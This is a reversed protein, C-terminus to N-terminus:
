PADDGLAYEVQERTFADCPDEPIASEPLPDSVAPAGSHPLQGGSPSQSESSSSSVSQSVGPDQSAPSATGDSTASCGAVLLVVAGVLVAGAM